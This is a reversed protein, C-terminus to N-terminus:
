LLNMIDKFLNMSLAQVVFKNISLFCRQIVKCSLNFILYFAGYVGQFLLLANIFLLKLLQCM